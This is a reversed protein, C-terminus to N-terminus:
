IVTAKENVSGGLKNLILKENKLENEDIFITKYGCKTFHKSRQKKFNKVSGYDHIKYYSYFVEICIKRNDIDVFDPNANGIWKKGDGVYIFPLNYKKIINMICIEFSTPGREDFSYYRNMYNCNCKQSCFKSNPNSFGIFKKGCWKCVKEIKLYKKHKIGSIHNACSHSCFKKNIKRNTYIEFKKKCVPCIKIEKKERRSWCERGCYKATNKRYNHIEFEKNCIVCIKKIKKIKHRGM